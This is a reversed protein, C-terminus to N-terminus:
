GQQRRWRLAAGVALSAMGVLAILPLPSATNPLKPGTSSVQAEAPAAPSAPTGHTEQGSAAPSAPTGGVEQGGSATKTEEALTAQVQRETMVEPEGETVITATIRDGARLDAIQVPKGDRLIKLSRKNMESQSFTKYTNDTYVLVSNAAVKKVVGQRVDTVYVSKTVTTTTITATGKMGPKLERVSLKKGGVDFRFDEPVTVEKSGEEGRLVVKNGDVSIVEFSKNETVAAKQASVAGAFFGLLCVGVAASLWKNGCRM